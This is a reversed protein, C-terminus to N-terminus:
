NFYGAAAARANRFDRRHQTLIMKVQPPMDKKYTIPQFDAAGLPGGTLVGPEDRLWETVWARCALVIPRPIREYGWRATVYIRLRPWSYNRLQNAYSDVLIVAGDEVLHVPLEFGEDVSIESVSGAVHVPLPLASLGNGRLMKISPETEAPKFYESESDGTVYLDILRSVEEIVRDAEVREQPSNLTLLGAAAGEAGQDATGALDEITCYKIGM